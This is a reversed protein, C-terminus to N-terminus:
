QQTPDYPLSITDYGSHKLADKYYSINQNYIEKSWSVDSIWKWIAKPIKPIAKAPHNSNKNICLPKANLKKNPQYIDKFTSLCRLIFILSTLLKWTQKLQLLCDM